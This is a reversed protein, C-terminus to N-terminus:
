GKRNFVIRIRTEEPLYKGGKQAPIWSPGQLLLRIAENSFAVGPSVLVNFQEPKGAPNVVFGLVVVARNLGTNVPFKLNDTIYNRFRRSGDVPSAPQYANAASKEGPQSSRATESGAPIMSSGVGRILLEERAEPSPEMIISIDKNEGLTIEQQNMGIFDAILAEQGKGMGTIEFKGEWDTMTSVATGKLSIIAGPLPANNESSIVIGTILGAGTRETGAGQGRTYIMEKIVNPASLDDAAVSSAVEEISKETLISEEDSVKIVPPPIKVKGAESEQGSSAAATTVKKGRAAGKGPAENKLQGAEEQPQNLVPQQVATKVPETAAAKEETKAPSETIAMPGHFLGLEDYYVTLLSASIILFIAVAAAIRYMTVRRRITIRKKLHLQLDAMDSAIDEPDVLLMGELAESAFPDKQLEKEFANRDRDNMRDGTYDLYTQLDKRIHKKDKSM